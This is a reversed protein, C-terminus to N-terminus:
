GALKSLKQTSSSNINILRKFISELMKDRLDANFLNRGFGNLRANSLWQTLESNVAYRMENQNQLVQNRAWDNLTGMPGLPRVLRNRQKDVLNITEIKGIIAASFVAQFSRVSLLNIRDSKFIDVPNEIHSPIGAASCDVLLFSNSLKETSDSFYLKRSDIARLKGKRIVNKVLRLQDIQKETVSAGKILDPFVEPDIRLWIKDDSMKQAFEELSNSDLVIEAQRAVAEFSDHLFESSHQINANNLLWSDKSKIWTISDASRGQNLMWLISDIATKGGGVIYVSDYNSQLEPIENPPVCRVGENVEFDPTHHLSLETGTLTADVYRKTAEINQAHGNNSIISHNAWSFESNPYYQVRGSNIYKTILREYYTKIEKNSAQHGLGEENAGTSEFEQSNVGYSEAPQETVIFSYSDQWHGGPAPRKDIITISCDSNSFIEDAFAMGMAGAGVVVYDSKIMLFTEDLITFISAILALVKVDTLLSM